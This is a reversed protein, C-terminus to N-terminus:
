LSEKIFNLREIESPHLRIGEDFGERELAAELSIYDYDQWVKPERSMVIKFGERPDLARNYGRCVTWFKYSNSKEIREPYVIESIGTKEKLLKVRENADVMALNKGTIEKFVELVDIMWWRDWGVSFVGNYKANKFVEDRIINWKESREIDVGLRVALLDQSILPGNMYILDKLIVQAINYSPLSESILLSSYIRADIKDYKIDLLKDMNLGIQNICEYGKILGYIRRSEKDYNQQEKHFRMDFLDHSSLDRKYLSKIKDQTSCLIIPIDLNKLDISRERINQALTPAKYQVREGKSNAASDLELDLIVAKIDGQNIREAIVSLDATEFLEVELLGNAQLADKIAEIQPRGGNIEDDIYLVKEM